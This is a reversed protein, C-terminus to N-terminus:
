NKHQQLYIEELIRISDMLGTRIPIGLSDMYQKYEQIQQYIDDPMENNMIEDGSQDFHKPMKVQDIKFTAKPKSIIADVFFYISLGASLICFSILIEKLRKMSNMRNSIITQLLIIGGAIKSAVKDQLGNETPVKKKRRFM